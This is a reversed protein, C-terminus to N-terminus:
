RCSLEPKELQHWYDVSQFPFHAISKNQQREGQREMKTTTDNTRKTNQQCFLKSVPKYRLHLQQQTEEM